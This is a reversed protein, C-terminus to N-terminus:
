RVKLSEDQYKKIPELFFDIIRRYGVKIEAAVTMGPTISIAQNDLNLTTSKLQIKAKFVTGMKEHQFADPSINIITGKLTGYKQFPYTDIKIETEQEKKIFGIDKNTIYAEVVLPTNEPVITILPESANVVGGITNKQISQVQGDIPSKITQEKVAKEAKQIIASQEQIKKQNDAILNLINSKREEELNDYAKQQKEINTKINEVTQRQAEYNQKSKDIQMKITKLQTNDVKQQMSDQNQKIEYDKELAKIQNSVEDLEQKSIADNEYLEKFKKEKEKLLEIQQKIKESSLEKVATDEGLSKKLELQSTLEEMELNLISLQNQAIKLETQSQQISLLAIDKKTQFEEQRAQQLKQQTSKIEESLTSKNIIEQVPKEELEATLIEKELTNIAITDKLMKLDVTQNSSDLEILVDEKKVKDGEKINIKKITGISSAQITKINGDTIIQGRATVVKDVKSISSWTILIILTIFIFWIIFRGIPSPPKEIIELAPPLFEYKLNKNNKKLIM